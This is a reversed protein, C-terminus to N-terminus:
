ACPRTTGQRVTIRTRLVTNGAITDHWRLTHSPAKCDFRRSVWGGGAPPEGAHVLQSEEVPELPELTIEASHTRVTCADGSLRPVLREAFHWHRCIAHAAACELTDIIEFVAAGAAAGADLVIERRHVVPDRLRRYGDHSGIFRPRPGHPEHLECHAHAHKSWMFNGQQVSQDEGDVSLTNHASTGRFWARWAPATHYCYTGPDILVEEGAVNLTFALADAHGHAALSLYGLPGADIVMRIEDAQGFDRGLLFYGSEPFALRPVYAITNRERLRDFRADAGAGLLWRSKDDFRGARAALDARDFLVAGTAVLSRYPCFDREPSLRTVYGDDADGIMPLHGAVDMLSALFDIMAEIRTWYNAPFDEGSNRAALGALLLFDLVFQQYSMAQERNGGDEANQRLAEAHLITMCRAGWQRMRSWYPWTRAAVFVGATEGILHNNASSFRSLHAVTHRAHQYVANLWADRFKKGDGGSFAPSGPGGILQWCLSWNILRIGLELSSSWNPGQPYPCQEFWSLLQHRLARLYGAERTLAWAQALTVLHLHRNPEWLYKINGVIREDRHDLLGAPRLPAETGTLPDRNWRPPWGLQVDRLAFVDHQDHVVRDAAERYLAADLSPPVAGLVWAPAGAGIWPPPVQTDPGIRTVVGRAAQAVRYALEPASMRRLRNIYWDPTQM